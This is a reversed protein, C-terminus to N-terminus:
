PGEVVDKIAELYGRGYKAEPELINGEAWENWSRVFIIREDVPKDAVFKLAKQMYKKFRKPTSGLFVRGGRQMRPTNDWGSFVCPYDDHKDQEQFAYQLSQRYSYFRPLLAYFRNRVFRRLFPLMIEKDFSPQLTSVADYPNDEPMPPEWMSHMAVFHFGNLGAKEVCENWTDVFVHPDPIDLPKYICFLLKGNVRIYREDEFAQRMAEFHRIYDEVGPYLQEIPEKKSPSGYWTSKWSHNAWGLCFPFDPKGSQVVETFPRPMARRGNGFWYHWYLFGEIGHERALKAQAERAEPLRLDYFGLETPNIPQRHFPYLPKMKNVNTWETFGKGWREDNEPIPHFQPFYFPIVRAKKM